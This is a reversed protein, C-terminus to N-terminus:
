KRKIEILDIVKDAIAQVDVDSVENDSSMGRDECFDEFMGEITNRIHSNNEIENDIMEDLDYAYVYDETHSEIMRSVTCEEVYDEDLRDSLSEISDNAQKLKRDLEFVGDKFNDLRIDVAWLSSTNGNVTARLKRLDELTARQLSDIHLWKWIMKRIQAKFKRM